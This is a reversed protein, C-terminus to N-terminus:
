HILACLPPFSFTCINWFGYVNQVGFLQSNLVVVVFLQDWPLFFQMIVTIILDEVDYWQIPVRLPDHVIM